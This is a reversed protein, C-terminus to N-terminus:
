ISEKALLSEPCGFADLIMFVPKFSVSQAM